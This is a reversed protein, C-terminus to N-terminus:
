HHGGHRYHHYRDHYGHHGHGGHHGGDYHHYGGHGHGGPGGHHGHHHGWCGGAGIQFWFIFSPLWARYFEQPNMVWGIACAVLGIIGLILSPFQARSIGTSEPARNTAVGASM